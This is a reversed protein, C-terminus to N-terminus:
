APDETAINHIIGYIYKNIKEASEISSEATIPDILEMANVAERLITFNRWQEYISNWFEPCSEPACCRLCRFGDRLVPHQYECLLRAMCLVSRYALVPVAEYDKSANLKDALRMYERSKTALLARNIKEVNTM